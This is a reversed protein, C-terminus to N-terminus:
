ARGGGSAIGLSRLRKRRRARQREQIEPGLTRMLDRPVQRRYDDDARTGM